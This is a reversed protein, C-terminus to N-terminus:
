YLILGLSDLLSPFFVRDTGILYSFVISSRREASASVKYKKVTCSNPIPELQLTCILIFAVLFDRFYLNSVVFRCYSLCRGLCPLLRRKDLTKWGQARKRRIYCHQFLNIKHYCLRWFNHFDDVHTVFMHLKPIYNSTEIIFAKSLLQYFNFIGIHWLVWNMRIGTVTIIKQCVM